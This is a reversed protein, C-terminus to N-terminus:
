GANRGKAAGPESRARCAPLRMADRVAETLNAPTCAAVKGTVAAAVPPCRGPQGAAGIEGSAAFVRLSVISAVTVAPVQTLTRCCAPPPLGARRQGVGRFSGVPEHCPAAPVAPERVHREARGALVAQM